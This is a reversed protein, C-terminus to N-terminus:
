ECDQLFRVVGDYSPVDDNSETIEGEPEGVLHFGPCRTEIGPIICNRNDKKMNLVECYRSAKPKTKLM